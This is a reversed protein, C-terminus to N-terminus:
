IEGKSFLKMTSHSYKERVRRREPTNEKKTNQWTLKHRKDKTKLLEKETQHQQKVLQEDYYRPLPVERGELIVNDHAILENAYKSVYGSGIGPRRSMLSFEKERRILEGDGCIIDFEWKRGHNKSIYSAVYVASHLSLSGCVVNGRDWLRNLTASNYTPNDSGSKQLLKRDGAPPEWGFLLIHYHPRYSKTGYEGCAYFRVKKKYTRWLHKRLTNIFRQLDIKRLTHGKPIQEPDYTLTIFCNESHQKREHECRM